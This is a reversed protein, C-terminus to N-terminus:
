LAPELLEAHESEPPTGYAPTPSSGEIRSSPSM